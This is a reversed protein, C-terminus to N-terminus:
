WTCEKNVWTGLLHMERFTTAPRTFLIPAYRGELSYGHGHIVDRVVCHLLMANLQAIESLVCGAGVDEEVNRICRM